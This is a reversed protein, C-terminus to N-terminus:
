AVPGSDDPGSQVNTHTHTNSIDKGNSTLTGIFNIVGTISAAVGSTTSGVIGALFTFLGNVTVMASFTSQPSNVTFRESADVEVEPAVLTIKQPSNVTIGSSNFQVYQTPTGNLLGGLYIGDSMDFRRFSGPAAAQKTAIVSSADHDAFVALGIDGPQPDIIVANAGGQIRLYPLGCLAPQAWIGGQGDVQNVLPQVDVTGVPSDAGANTCATVQVLTAVHVTELVRRILQVQADMPGLGKTFNLVGVLSLAQQEAM